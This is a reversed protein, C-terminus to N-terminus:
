QLVRDTGIKWEPYCAHGQCFALDRLSKLLILLYYHVVNQLVALSCNFLILDSIQLPVSKTCKKVIVNM